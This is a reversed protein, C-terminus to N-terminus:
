HIYRTLDNLAEFILERLCYFVLGCFLIGIIGSLPSISQMLGHIPSQSMFNHLIEVGYQTLQLKDQLEGLKASVEIYCYWIIGAIETILALTRDIILDYLVVFPALVMGIIIAIPDKRTM